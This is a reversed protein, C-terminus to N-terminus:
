SDYYFETGGATEFPYTYFVGEKEFEVNITDRVQKPDSIDLAKCVDNLCFLPENNEDVAVRVEFNENKFIELNM